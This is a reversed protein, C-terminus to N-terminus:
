LEFARAEKVTLNGHMTDEQPVYGVLKKYRSLSDPKGNIKVVGLEKGYSARGALATLFTTQAVFAYTDPWV